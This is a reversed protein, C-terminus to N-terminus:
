YHSEHDHFCEKIMSWPLNTKLLVIPGFRDPKGEIREVIKYQDGFLKLVNRIIKERELIMDVDCLGAMLIAVCGDDNILIEGPSILDEKKLDREM